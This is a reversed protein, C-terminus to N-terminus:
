GIISRCVGAVTPVHATPSTGSDTNAKMKRRWRSHSDCLSIIHFFRYNFICTQKERTETECSTKTKFAKGVRFQWVLHGFWRRGRHGGEGNGRVPGQRRFRFHACYRNRRKLRSLSCCCLDPLVHGDNYPGHDTALCHALTVVRCSDVLWIGLGNGAM